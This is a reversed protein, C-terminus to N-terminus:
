TTYNGWHQSNNTDLFKVNDTLLLQSNHLYPFNLTHDSKFQAMFLSPAPHQCAIRWKLEQNTELM